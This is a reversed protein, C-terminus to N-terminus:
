ARKINRNSINNNLGIVVPQDVITQNNITGVYYKGQGGSKIASNPILLANQHQNTIIDVKAKMGAKINTGSPLTFGVKVSYTTPGTASVQAANLSM